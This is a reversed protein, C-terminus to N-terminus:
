LPEPNALATVVHTGGFAFSQVLTHQSRHPHSIPRMYFDGFDPALNPQPYSQHHRFAQCAAILSMLGSAGMTHGIMSKIAAGQIQALHIGFVKQLACLESADNKLTATGHLHIQDVQSPSWQSEKLTNQICQVQADVSPAVLDQSDCLSTIGHIEALIPLHHKHAFSQRVLILAAIGDALLFGQREPHYPRCAKHPDTSNSLVRMKDWADVLHACINLDAGLVAACQTRGSKLDGVAQLLASMGSSCATACTWAPGMWNQQHAIWYAPANNMYLPITLPSIRNKGAQFYTQYTPELDWLNGFGSGVYVGCAQAPIGIEQLGSAEWAENFADLCWLSLQSLHQRQAPPLKNPLPATSPLWSCLQTRSSHGDLTPHTSLLSFGHQGSILKRAFEQSSKGSSNSSDEPTILGHRVATSLIVIPDEIM